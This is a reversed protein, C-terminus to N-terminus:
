KAKRAILALSHSIDQEFSKQRRKAIAGTFNRGKFGPHRVSRAFVDNGFAGGPYSNIVGIRTKAVYGSRFRLYKSRKPRITHPKTGLEVFVYPKDSTGVTITLAKANEEEVTVINAKHKWTKQTNQFDREVLKMTKRTSQRAVILYEQGTPLSTLKIPKLPQLKLTPM